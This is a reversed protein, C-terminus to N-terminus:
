SVAENAVRLLVAAHCWDPQGPEPLPCWCALNKGALEARIEALTPYPLTHVCERTQPEDTAALAHFMLTVIARSGLDTSQCGTAVKYPNGWRSPRAVNVTNAPLRWGKRRSLQVRQPTM